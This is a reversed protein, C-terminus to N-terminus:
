TEDGYDYKIVVSVPVCEDGNEKFMGLHKGLNELAKNKDSVKVIGKIVKADDLPIFAVSAMEKLVREQTIETKHQLENLRMQHYESVNPKRLLNSAIVAATADNKVNPYIKKYAATQNHGNIFLEDVFAKQKLTTKTAM